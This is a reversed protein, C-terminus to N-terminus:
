GGLDLLGLLERLEIIVADPEPAGEPLEEPRTTVGGHSPPVDTPRRMWVTKWGAQIAPLIDHAYSNGIFVIKEPPMGVAAEARRFVSVNPKGEGMEGEILITDFYSGIGLVEIEQRQTDAPGNTILGLPYRRKLKKLVEFAGDFLRLGDVRHRLYCDSLAQACQEDACRARTLTRRMQETRTPEGSELYAPYWGLRKLSPAFERFEAAWHDMLEDPTLGPPGCEEFARKLAAKSAEWYGCLTDDLDFFIAEADLPGPPM